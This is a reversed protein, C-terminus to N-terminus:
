GSLNIMSGVVQFLKSVSDIYFLNSEVKLDSAGFKRISPFHKALVKSIEEEIKKDSRIMVVFNIKAKELLYDIHWHRKKEPSLHRSVREELSNMASGVYAYLGPKFSWENKSVRVTSPEFVEILLLYAGKM